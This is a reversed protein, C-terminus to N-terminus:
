LQGEGDTKRYEDNAHKVTKQIFAYILSLRIEQECISWIPPM